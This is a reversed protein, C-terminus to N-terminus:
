VSGNAVTYFFHSICYRGMGFVNTKMKVEEVSHLLYSPFFLMRNNKVEIKENLEDFVLDGGDFQKPEKYLWILSTFQFVDFHPKFYDSDEYYSVFTSDKNTEGFQRAMPIASALTKHLELNHFKNQLTLINSIKRKEFRYYSDIYMRYCFAKSKKEEDVPTVSLNHEARNLNERYTYFELEKWISELEKESYWNDFILYNQNKKINEINNYILRM